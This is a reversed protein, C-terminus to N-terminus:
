RNVTVVLVQPHAYVLHSLQSFVRFINSSSPSHSRDSKGLGCVKPQQRIVFEYEIADLDHLCNHQFPPLQVVTPLKRMQARLEMDGPLPDRFYYCSGHVEIAMFDRTEQINENAGEFSELTADSVTRFEHPLTKITVDKVYELDM